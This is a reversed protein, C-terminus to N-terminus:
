LAAVAASVAEAMTRHASLARVDRALAEMTTDHFTLLFHKVDVFPISSSRPHVREVQRIDDLWRSGLVEHLAYFELGSGWLRHGSLAEDNPFGFTVSLCGVFEAVQAENSDVADREDRYFAFLTRHEGALM